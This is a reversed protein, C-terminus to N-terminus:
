NRNRTGLQLIAQMAQLEVCTVLGDQWVFTDRSVGRPEGPTRWLGTYTGVRIRGMDVFITTVYQETSDFMIQRM